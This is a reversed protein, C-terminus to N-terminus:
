LGKCTGWLHGKRNLAKGVEWERGALILFVTRPPPRLQHPSSIVIGDDANDADDDDNAIATTATEGM